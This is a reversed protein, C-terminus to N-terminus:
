PLYLLLPFSAQRSYGAPPAGSDTANLPRPDSGAYNMEDFGDYLTEDPIANDKILVQGNVDDGTVAHIPPSILLTILQTPRLIRNGFYNVTSSDGFDREGYLHRLRPSTTLKFSYVTASQAPVLEKPLAQLVM